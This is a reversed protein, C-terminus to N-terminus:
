RACFEELIERISKKLRLNEADLQLLRNAAETIIAAAMGDPTHLALVDMVLALTKTETKEMNRTIEM